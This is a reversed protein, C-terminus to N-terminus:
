PIACGPTCCTPVGGRCLSVRPVPNQVSTDAAPHLSFSSGLGVLSVSVAGLLSGDKAEAKYQMYCEAMGCTGVPVGTFGYILYTSPITNPVTYVVVNPGFLDTFTDHRQVHQPESSTTCRITFGGGVTLSYLPTEAEIAMGARLTGDAAQQRFTTNVTKIFPIAAAQSSIAVLSLAVLIRYINTSM